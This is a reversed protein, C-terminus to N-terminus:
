PKVFPTVPVKVLGIEVPQADEVRVTKVRTRFGRLSVRLTVTAGRVLEITLPTTGTVVGDVEVTAGRPTSVVPVGITPVIPPSAPADPDAVRARENGAAEVASGAVPAAPVAGRWPGDSRELSAVGFGIAALAAVVAMAAVPRWEHLETPRRRLTMPLPAPMTPSLPLPVPVADDREARVPESAVVPTVAAVVGGSGAIAVSPGSAPVDLAVIETSWRPVLPELADRLAAASQYRDAPAKALLRYVVAAVLPPVEAPLAPVPTSAHMSILQHVSQSVFPPRGVLMEYLMVGLAYLDSRGDVTDGTTMEPAMYTPTGLLNGSITHVTVEELDHMVKALGFDLVKIADRGAPEALVIVNAPKLDRHVIDQGHAAALADALQYAIRAARTATFRENAILQALTPGRVLEMVLYLVEDDTQGFDIVSVTCPHTLQSALRAERLFRKAIVKDIGCRARMVKVAVDRKVSEQWARYVVGMGGTGVRERIVFRGDIERGLMPDRGLRILRAGDHPCADGSVGFSRDCVPCYAEDLTAMPPLVTTGQTGSPTETV